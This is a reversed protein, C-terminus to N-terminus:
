DFFSDIIERQSKFVKKEKGKPTPSGKVVKKEEHKRSGLAGKVSDYLSQLRESVQAKEPWGNKTFDARVVDSFVKQVQQYDPDSNKKAAEWNVAAKVLEQKQAEQVAQQQVQAQLEQKQKLTNNEAMLKQRELAEERTLEGEEVKQQIEPSLRLGAREALDNLMPQIQKIAEMPDDHSKRIFEAYETLNNEGLADFYQAKNELEAIQQKMSETEEKFQNKQEVLEKFRPHEHFEKPLDDEVNESAEDEKNVTEESPDEEESKEESEEGKESEEDTDLGHADEVNGDEDFELAKDIADFTSQVEEISQDTSSVSENNADEPNSDSSDETQKADQQLPEVSM